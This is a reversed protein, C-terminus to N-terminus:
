ILKIIGNKYMTKLIMNIASVTLKRVIAAIKPIEVNTKKKLTQFFKHMGRLDASFARYNVLLHM